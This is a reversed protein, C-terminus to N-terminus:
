RHGNRKKAAQESEWDEGCDKSRFIRGDNVSSECFYCAGVPLLSRNSQRHYAIALNRDQEERETAQDYIDTM